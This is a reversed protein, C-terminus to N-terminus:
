PGQATIQLVNGNLDTKAEVWNSVIGGFANKGRYTTKVILYDTKDWYKTEVHEYSNPDNMAKKILKTLERHSGDWSSFGTGIQVERKEKPTLPKTEKEEEPFFSGIIGAIVLIGIIALCGIATYKKTKDEEEKIIVIKEPTLKKGCNPCSNADESIQKKCEPCKIMAM